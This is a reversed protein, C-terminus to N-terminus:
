GETNPLLTKGELEKRVSDLVGNIFPVSEDGSFRRALDLAEDIVVAAPTGGTMMEYIGMRLINRDVAPMRELRWHESYRSIREDIDPTRAVTGRALDEMFSDRDVVDEGDQAYIDYASAIAEDVDLTRVDCQYLIQVARQRSRHRSAM